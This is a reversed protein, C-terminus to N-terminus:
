QSKIIDLSNATRYNLVHIDIVQCALSIKQIGNLPMHWFDCIKRFTVFNYSFAVNNEANKLIKIKM